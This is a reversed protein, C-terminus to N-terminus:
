APLFQLLLLLLLLGDSRVVHMHQSVSIDTEVISVGGKTDGTATRLKVVDLWYVTDRYQVPVSRCKSVGRGGCYVNV